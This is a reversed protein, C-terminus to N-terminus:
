KFFNMLAKLEGASTEYLGCAVKAYGQNGKDLMNVYHGCMCSKDYYCGAPNTNYCSVEDNFMQQEICIDFINATSSFPSCENQAQGCQSHHPTNTEHNVRADNDSCGESAKDRMLPPRNELARLKNIRDVCGQYFAACPQADVQGMWEVGSVSTKVAIRNKCKMGTFKHTRKVSKGPNLSTVYPPAEPAQVWIKSENLTIMSVQPMPKIVATGSNTMTMELTVTDGPMFSPPTYNVQLQVSPSPGSCAALCAMLSVALLVRAARFLFVQPPVSALARCFGNQAGPILQRLLTRSSSLDHPVRPHAVAAM